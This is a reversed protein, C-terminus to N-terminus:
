QAAKAMGLEVLVEKLEPYQADLYKRTDRSNMYTNEWLNNELNKRWEDSQTLRAMVGDWYAIQAPQLGSNAIMLRFNDVVADIGQEKLTPVTALVGTLRKPASMALIRVAGSRFHPLILSASSAVVDVHGGLAAVMSEASSKFVVTKLKKMDGGAARAVLAAAIHNAGGLSTGVAISVAAAEERLRAALDHITKIPSDAKVAFGVYESNLLAIPTFDTYNYSSRGTIHNTLLLAPAIHVFHPDAVHQKLYALSVAGGGGPKNVVAVPVELFRKDQWIKLILRATKDTGGGPGSPAIVEVAKEPRWAAPQAASGAAGWAALAAWGLAVIRWVRKGCCGTKM